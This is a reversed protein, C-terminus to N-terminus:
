RNAKLSGSVGVQPRLRGHFQRPATGGAGPMVTGVRARREQLSTKWTAKANDARRAM